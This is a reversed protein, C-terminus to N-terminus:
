FVAYMFQTDAGAYIVYICMILLAVYIFSSWWTRKWAKYLRRPYPTMLLLGMVLYYWYDRLYRIFQGDAPNAGSPYFGFMCKIYAWMEGLDSHAFIMWTIPMIFWVYIHGIIKTESIKHAFSLKEVIVIFGLIIGWIIFNFGIGHWLGTVIWVVSLNLITFLKGRRSGGLPIYIYDKFWKGLTIHWRRWFESVSKSVYPNNFNRPIKMGIMEGLGIAILSYGWFDLYLELEYVFAGLWATQWTIGSTGSVCIANWITQIQDAVLIKMSLGVTFTRIGIAVSEANVLRKKDMLRFSKRVEEYRMIPGMALKPYAFLFAYYEKARIDEYSRYIDVQLAIVTFTYFSIGIVTFGTIKMVVIPIINLIIILFLNIKRLVSEKDRKYLIRSFIFNITASMILFVLSWIRMDSFIIYFLFGGVILGAKQWRANALHSITLYIPLGILILLIYGLGSM